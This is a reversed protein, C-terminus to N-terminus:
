DESDSGGDSFTNGCNNIEEATLDRSGDNSLGTAVSDGDGEKDDGDKNNGDEDENEKREDGEFSVEKSSDAARTKADELEKMCLKLEDNWENIRSKIKKIRDDCENFHENLMEYEVWDDDGEALTGNKVRQQFPRLERFAELKHKQFDPISLEDQTIQSRIASVRAHADAVSSKTEMRQLLNIAGMGIDDDDDEEEWGSGRKKKRGSSGSNSTSSRKKKTKSNIRPVNTMSVGVDSNVVNMFEHLLDEEELSAYFYGTADGNARVTKKAKPGTVFDKLTSGERAGQGGGSTHFSEHISIISGRFKDTCIKKMAEATLFHNKTPPHLDVVEHFPEGYKENFNRSKLVVKSNYMDAADEYLTKPRMASNRGDIQHRSLQDNRKLFKSRLNRHLLCEIARLLRFLNAEMSGSNFLYHMRFEDLMNQYCKHIYEREDVHPPNNELWDICKDKTWQKIRPLPDVSETIARRIIEKKLFPIAKKTTPDVDSPAYLNANTNRKTVNVIETVEKIDNAGPFGPVGITMVTLVVPKPTNDGAAAAYYKKAVLDSAGYMILEEYTVAELSPDVSDPKSAAATNNNNNETDGNNDSSNNGSNDSNNNSNSDDADDSGLFATTRKIHEEQVIKRREKELCSKCVEKFQGQQGCADFKKKLKKDAISDYEESCFTSHVPEECKCCLHRRSPPDADEPAECLDGACCQNNNDSM